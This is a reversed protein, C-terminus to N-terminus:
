AAPAADSPTAQADTERRSAAEKEASEPRQDELKRRNFGMAQHEIAARWETLKSHACRCINQCCASRCVLDPGTAGPGPGDGEAGAGVIAPAM